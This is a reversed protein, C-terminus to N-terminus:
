KNAIIISCAVLALAALCILTIPDGLFIASLMVGFVPVMFKCVAIRSVPNYKLLVSWLTYAVASILALYLMMVYAGFGHPSVSGGTILGLAIMILGGIFFQWGSLMVPDDETSFKKIFCTSVSSSLISLLLLGEGKMSFSDYAADGGLNMIVIGALGILGATLKKATLKEQRFIFAAVFLLVIVGTGNIISAKVGATNALGIYYFAYQLVTQFMALTFVRRVSAGNKPAPFRRHLAAEFLIVLVGAVAFRIGAYIWISPVHQTDVGFLAYGIKVCPFASGWLICCFAALTIAPILRSLIHEKEKEM